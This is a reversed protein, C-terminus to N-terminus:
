RQRLTDLLSNISSSGPLSEASKQISEVGSLISSYGGLLQKLYPQMYYYLGFSGGIILAWYFIKMARAWRHASVIKKMLANTERSLALNEELLRKTEQDM